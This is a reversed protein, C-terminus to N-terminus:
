ECHEGIAVRGAFYFHRGTDFHLWGGKDPARIAQLVRTHQEYGSNIVTMRFPVDEATVELSVSPLSESFARVYKGPAYDHNVHRWDKQEPNFPPFAGKECPTEWRGYEHKLGFSVNYEQVHIPELAELCVRFAVAGGAAEIEWHQRCPFRPSDGSVYLCDGERRVSSWQMDHSMNWIQSVLMQTHLHVSHTLEKGGSTLVVSGWQFKVALDGIRLSREAERERARERVEDPTLALNLELTLLDHPGAHLTSETEPMQGSAQLVRSGTVYDSNTWFMSFFPSHAEMSALVAPLGLGEKPLAATERCNWDIPVIATWNQDGPLINPFPGDLDGYIWHTYATPWLMDVKIVSIETDQSCEMAIHWILRGDEIRLDYILELPLRAMRGRAKCRDPGREEVIWDANGSDHWQGMHQINIRFGRAASVETQRYFLSVRGHCFIAEMAESSFTHIGAERGIQRLYYEITAQPTGRSIMRGKSLLIVRNCLTNVIGLDHSVFVLTKGQERLEGIRTRCRRQFEEDGVSLVEDVLFLDPNTHVAVAFGLRVFMGSSYTNVPNDIFEGIGSFEVIRDFVQATGARTMGLICANLFVNERGTLLPHFGAGLELLSAVRGSVEIQGVTPISVGALLKLLTSKGSGNAGIIGVAEGEEITFSIDELATVSEKRPHFLSAFGGRALLMRPGTRARFVKSVNDVKILHTM